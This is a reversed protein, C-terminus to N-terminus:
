ELENSILENTLENITLLQTFTEVMLNILQMTDSNKVFFPLYGVVMLERSDSSVIARNSDAVPSGIVGKSDSLVLKGDASKELGSLSIYNENKFGWRYYLEESEIKIKDYLGLPIGTWVSLLNNIDVFANIRPFPKDMRKLLAESAPRYRSPDMNPMKKFTAKLNDLVQKRLVSSDPNTLDIKLFKLKENFLSEFNRKIEAVTFEVNLLIIEGEWIQALEKDIVIKKM